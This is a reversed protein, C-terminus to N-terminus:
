YALRKLKNLKVQIDEPVFTGSSGTFGEYVIEQLSNFCVKSEKTHPFEKVCTELYAEDYNFFLQTELNHYLLGLLNMIDGHKQTVKTSKLATHLITSARLADIYSADSVVISSNEFTVLNRAAKLARNVNGQGIVADDQKPNLTTDWKKLSEIWSSVRNNLYNPLNKKRVIAKFDRIAEKPKRNVRVHYYALNKLSESVEFINTGNKPFGSIIALFEKKAEPYTRLAFFFQARDFPRVDDNTISNKPLYSFEYGRPSRTHCSVCMGLSSQLMYRAFKKAGPKRFYKETEDIHRELMRFNTKASLDGEFINQKRFSQIHKQLKGIYYNIKDESGPATFKAESELYSRLALMDDAIFQMAARQQLEEDAMDANIQPSSELASDHKSESQSCSVFLLTFFGIILFHAM